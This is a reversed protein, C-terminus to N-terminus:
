SATSVVRQYLVAAPDIQRGSWARTQWAWRHGPTSSNGIVGDAAPWQCVNIGGYVGTRQVGLLRTSEAFGSCRSPTGPTATSTRTSPSFSRHVIAAGQRPTCSGPPAL